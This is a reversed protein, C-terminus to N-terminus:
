ATCSCGLLGCQCRGRQVEVQTCAVCPSPEPDDTTARTASACAPQSGATRATIPPVSTLSASTPSSVPDCTPGALDQQQTHKRTGPGGHRGTTHSHTFASKGMFTENLYVHLTPPPPNPKTQPQVSILTHTHTSQPPVRALPPGREHTTTLHPQQRPRPHTGVECLAVDGCARMHQKPKSAHACACVCVCM